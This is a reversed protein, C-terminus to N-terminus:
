HVLMHCITICICDIFPKSQECSHCAGHIIMISHWVRVIDKEMKAKQIAMEQERKIRELRAERKAREEVEKLVREREERERREEEEKRAAELRQIRQAEEAAAKQTLVKQRLESVSTSDSQM